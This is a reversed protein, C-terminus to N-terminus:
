TNRCINLFVGVLIFSVVLNTGGYSLFILPIGVVPLIGLTMGINVFIHIFLYSCIGVSLCRAFPDRMEKTRDLILKIILWYILLLFISGLFGWEEAVITFIFDTHREPLFNFQNQTGSLFGKGVLKGSGIAIKSQIITYGAGLPDVNPNLFVILRKKQYDKLYHGAFPILLLGSVLLFVFCRKRIKSSIGMMLFLIVLVVATGLDPQKFIIFANLLVLSLPLIFGKIFYKRDSSSFFRALIFITTIKSLESPQFTFAGIALWRQAGMTTKGFFYVTLLLCINVIYLISSFDFYLRYNMLSVMILIVWSIMIWTLQKYFIDPNKLEGRQHLSSYVITLSLINLFLLCIIIVKAPNSKINSLNFFM